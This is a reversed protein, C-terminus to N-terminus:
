TRDRAEILLNLIQRPQPTPMELEFGLRPVEMQQLHPGLFGFVFLSFFGTLYM